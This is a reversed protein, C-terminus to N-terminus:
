FDLKFWVPSSDAEKGSLSSCFSPSKNFITGGFIEAKFDEAYRFQTYDFNAEDKFNTDRFTAVKNFNTNSFSVKDDFICHDFRVTDFFKSHSFDAIKQFEAGDVGDVFKQLTDFLMVGLKGDAPKVGFIVVRWFEAKVFTINDRFRAKNFFSRGKFTTYGFSTEGHFIAGEFNAKENFTSENFSTKGHFIAHDFLIPQNFFGKVHINHLYSNSLDLELNSWPGRKQTRGKPDRFRSFIIKQVKEKFLPLQPPPDESLPDHLQNILINLCVQNEQKALDPRNKYFTAWDDALAALAYAGSERKTFDDTALLEVISTFRERLAREKDQKRTKEGNHLAIWAALVAFIGAGFTALPQAAISWEWSDWSFDWDRLLFEAITFGAGGFITVVLVFKAWKMFRGM